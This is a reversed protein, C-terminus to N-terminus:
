VITHMLVPKNESDTEEFYPLTITFTTGQNPISNIELKGSQASILDKCLLLGFGSGSENNTGKNTFHKNKKIKELNDRSIGLGNDSVYIHVNDNFVEASLKIEGKIPTFKLANSILYRM